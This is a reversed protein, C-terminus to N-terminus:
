WHQEKSGANPIRQGREGRQPIIKILSLTQSNYYYCSFTTHSFYFHCAQGLQTKERSPAERGRTTAAPRLMTPPAPAIPIKTSKHMKHNRPWLYLLMQGSFAIQHEGRTARIIQSPSAPLFSVDIELDRNLAFICFKFYFITQPQAPAGIQM